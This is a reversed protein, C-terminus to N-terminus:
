DGRTLVRAIVRDRLKDPLPKELLLRMRADGVTYRTKPRKASLAKQITRAAREASVGTVKALTALDTGSEMLKEYRRKGEPPLERRVEEFGAEAKDWIPTDITGPEVIVVEIDSEHLEIRFTDALAEVAWKSACYPGLLPIARARGQVSSIFVIRGAGKRLLPLFAQTCALQGIVNVELQRRMEDPPLYELPAQVTVGANNILGHLAGATEAHVSEVAAAISKDDTIDLRIPVLNRSADHSLREADEDNRVGAFVRWGHADLRLATARGIGSSTGSILVSRM